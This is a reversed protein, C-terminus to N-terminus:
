FLNKIWKKFYYWNLSLRIKWKVEPHQESWLKFTNEGKSCIPCDDNGYYYNAKM